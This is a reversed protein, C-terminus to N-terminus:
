TGMWGWLQGDFGGVGYGCLGTVLAQVPRPVVSPQVDTPRSPAPLRPPMGAYFREEPFTSPGERRTRTPSPPCRRPAHGAPMSCPAPLSLVCWRTEAAVETQSKPENGVLQHICAQETLLWLM